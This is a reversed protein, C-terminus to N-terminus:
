STLYLSISPIAPSLNGVFRFRGEEPETVIEVMFSGLFVREYVSFAVSCLCFAMFFVQVFSLIEM